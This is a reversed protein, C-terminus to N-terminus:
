GDCRGMDEYEGSGYYQPEADIGTFEVLETMTEFFKGTHYKTAIGTNDQGDEIAEGFIEKLAYHKILRLQLHEPIGDPTDGDLAMDVPKRYFHVGLNESAAPIGQYYLRTGKVAAKYISGSETVRLDSIQKLFLIYAYYDGGRPPAIMVGSNDLIRFVNRQYGSPLSAYALATTAVTGYDALAPLPPSISGDPMKIGGAIALQARNIHKAIVAPTYVSRDQVIGDIEEILVSLTISSGAAAAAKTGTSSGTAM